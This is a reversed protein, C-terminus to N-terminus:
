QRQDPPAQLVLPVRAHLRQGDDVIPYEHLQLSDIRRGLLVPEHEIDVVPFPTEHEAPDRSRPHEMPRAGIELERLGVSGTM